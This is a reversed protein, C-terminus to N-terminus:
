IAKFPIVQNKDFISSNQTILLKLDNFVFINTLFLDIIINKLATWYM